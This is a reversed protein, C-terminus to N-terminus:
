VHDGVLGNVDIAVDVGSTKLAVFEPFQITVIGVQNIQVDSLYARFIEIFLRVDGLAEVLGLVGLLIVSVQLVPEKLVVV